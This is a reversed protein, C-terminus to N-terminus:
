GLDVSQLAKSVEDFSHTVLYERNDVMFIRTYTRLTAGEPRHEEASVVKQLDIVIRFEADRTRCQLFRM